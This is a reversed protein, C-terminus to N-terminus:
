KIKQSVCDKLLITEIGQDDIEILVGKRGSTLWMLNETRYGTGRDSVFNHLMHQDQNYRLIIKEYDDSHKVDVEHGNECRYLSLKEMEPDTYTACSALVVLISLFKM